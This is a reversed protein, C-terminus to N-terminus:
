TKQFGPPPSGFKSTMEATGDETLAHTTLQLFSYLHFFCAFYLPKVCCLSKAKDLPLIAFVHEDMEGGDRRRSIAAQIFAGADREDDLSSGFPQLGFVNGEGCHLNM